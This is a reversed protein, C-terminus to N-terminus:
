AYKLAYTFLLHAFQSYHFYTIYIQCKPLYIHHAHVPIGTYRKMIHFAHITLRNVTFPQCKAAIYRYKTISITNNINHYQYEIISYKNYCTTSTKVSQWCPSMRSEFVHEVAAHPPIGRMWEGRFLGCFWWSFIASLRLFQVSWCFGAFIRHRFFM